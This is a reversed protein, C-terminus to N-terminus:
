KKKEKKKKSEHTTGSIFSVYLEASGPIGILAMYDLMDVLNVEEDYVGDEKAMDKIMKLMGKYKM